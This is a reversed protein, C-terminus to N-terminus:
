LGRRGYTGERLVGNAFGIGAVIAAVGRSYPEGWAPHDPIM